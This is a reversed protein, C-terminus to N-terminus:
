SIKYCKLFVEKGDKDQLIRINGDQLTETVSWCTWFIHEQRFVALITWCCCFPKQFCSTGVDSFEQGSEGSLVLPHQLPNPVEEFSMDQTSLPDHIAKSINAKNQNSKHANKVFEVVM